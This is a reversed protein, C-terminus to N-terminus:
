NNWDAQMWIHSIESNGLETQDGSLQVLNAKNDSNGDRKTTGDDRQRTMEDASRFLKFCFWSLIFVVEFLFVIEFLYFSVWCLSGTMFIQFLLGVLYFRDRWVQWIFGLLGFRGLQVQCVLGVLGYMVFWVQGVLGVLGYRGFWLQCFRLFLCVLGYMSFWDYWILGVFVFGVIGFREIAVFYSTM